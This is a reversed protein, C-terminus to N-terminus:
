SIRVTTEDALGVTGADAVNIRAAITHEGTAADEWERESIRFLGSWEKRFRKREGRGFQFRGVREPPDRRLVHSAETHGDVSWDWLVPSRTEVTVPVPLRNKMTVAFPVREGQAFETRPVELRLSVARRAIGQPLLRDSWAASDLWRFSQPEMEREGPVFSEEDDRSLADSEYIRRM